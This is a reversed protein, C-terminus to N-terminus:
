LLLQLGRSLHLLSSLLTLLFVSSFCSSTLLASDITESYYNVREVLYM